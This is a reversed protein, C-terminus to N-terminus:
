TKLSPTPKLQHSSNLRVLTQITSMMETKADLFRSTQQEGSSEIQVIQGGWATRRSFNVLENPVQEEPDSFKFDKPYRFGEAYRRRCNQLERRFSAPDAGHGDFIRDAFILRSAVFVVGMGPKIGHRSKLLSTACHPDAGDLFYIFISIKTNGRSRLFENEITKNAASPVFGPEKLRVSLVNVQEATSSKLHTDISEDTMVPIIM